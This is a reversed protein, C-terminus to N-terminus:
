SGRSALLLQSLMARLRAPAVPKRMYRLGDTVARARVDDDDRGSVLVTPPSCGWRMQLTPLLDPGITAGLQYDLIVLDPADDTEASRMAEGADGAVAVVCGWSGLLAATAERTSQEDDICLIRAGALPSEDFSAVVAHTPAAASAMPVDISFVSGRGPWSRLGIRHGLLRAARDVISLGLGASRHDRDMGSDLRHFEEFIADRKGEPIGIGTDWVEIRVQGGIRRCGLLVRGRPTYHIANSLFNQLVRRLLLADSNVFLSCTIVHLNLARASALIGFQRGLDRLLPALAVAEVRAVLAGAELRSIDLLSALLDDQAELASEIREILDADGRGRLAGVYMRAANLPQLLDHVAAAVFRTKYRNAREAEAKALGLDHTREKIRQELTAALTRLDRAANKYATIDAYSTVYGGGPLPNGRIELITGDPREREHAYPGGSRLFSLRREIAEDPDGPGLLGRRANYRFLDAIPRGVQMLEAPFRFIEVYRANWAILCLNADVVSVGQPLHELSANQGPTVHNAAEVLSDQASRLAGTYHAVMRELEDRSRIRHRALRARQQLYLGLLILPLWALATVLGVTRGVAVSPGADQVLHLQWHQEPLDRTSWLYRGRQLPDDIRTLRGDGDLTRLTTVSAAHLPEGEYQKTEALLRSTATDLPHLTRYMWAARTAVFVVGHEDSILTTGHGSMEDGQVTDLSIKVVVAGIRLGRDDTVAEAIYYGPVKTTLGMAYFFGVGQDMARQFYPRFEYHRGVNSGAERWNNAAVAVGHRDVLTLTSPHTAVNARELKLNLRATTAADVPGALAARLEPDLALVTPLVRYSDILRQLALAQLQLQNQAEGAQNHLARREALGSAMWASAAVVATALACLGVIRLTSRSFTM